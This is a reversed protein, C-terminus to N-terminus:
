TYKNATSKIIRPKAVMKARTNFDLEFWLLYKILVIMNHATMTRDTQRKTNNNTSGYKDWPLVEIHHINPETKIVLKPVVLRVAERAIRNYMVVM